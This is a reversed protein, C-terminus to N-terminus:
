GDMRTLGVRINKKENVSIAFFKSLLSIRFLANKEKREKSLNPLDLLSNNFM